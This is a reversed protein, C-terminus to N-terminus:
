NNMEEFASELSQDIFTEQNSICSHEQLIPFNQGSESATAIFDCGLTRPMKGNTM